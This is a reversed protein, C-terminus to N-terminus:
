SNITLIVRNTSWQTIPSLLRLMILQLHGVILLVPRYLPHVRVRYVTVLHKSKPRTEYQHELTENGNARKYQNIM